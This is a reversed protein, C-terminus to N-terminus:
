VTHLSCPQRAHAGHPQHRQRPLQGAMPSAGNCRSSGANTATNGDAEIHDRKDRLNPHGTPPVREQQERPM